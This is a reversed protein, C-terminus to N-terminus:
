SVLEKLEGNDVTVMYVPYGGDVEFDETYELEANELLMKLKVLDEAECMTFTFESDTEQLYEELNMGYYEIAKILEKKM